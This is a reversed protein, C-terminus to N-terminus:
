RIPRAIVLAALDLGARGARALRRRHSALAACLGGKGGAAPSFSSKGEGPVRLGSLFKRPSLSHNEQCFIDMWLADALSRFHCFNKM